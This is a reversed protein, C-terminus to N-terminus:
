GTTTSGTSTGTSTGTSISFTDPVNTNAKNGKVASWVIIFIIGIVILCVFSMILKDTAVRRSFARLEKGALKLYSQVEQIGEGVKQLQETHTALSEGIAVGTEKVQEIDNIIRDLGELDKKQINEAKQLVQKTTMSDPDTSAPQGNADLTANDTSWNLDQNLKNIQEMFEKAKKNWPDADVKPLDRLELKFNKYVQKARTIRGTLYAIKNQKETASLKPLGDIGKRTDTCLKELEAELDRLEDTM